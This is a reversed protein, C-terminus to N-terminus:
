DVQPKVIELVKAEWPQLGLDNTTQAYNSQLLIMQRDTQYEFTQPEDSFNLLVLIESKEDWRRYAYVQEHENQVSEYDGYVFMPNQKRWMIMHRYYNLVSTPDEEQDKANIEVFNPNPKIWPEAESFGGNTESSWQMPTRANDRGMKHVNHIHEKWDKGEAELTKFYNLTEVDRYDEPTEFAVNTMGLEDGQYVYPTGRMTMTMTVLLKAAEIRYKGDNAFRSVQRPFDHNDLFISGWGQNRLKEDWRNFINKFEVLSYPIPDFKGGEGMDLFMHDFHFVMNLENRDEGVYDLGHELTIGPGEGVTMIDYKSLVEKNLEQLFEHIRPGNAYVNEIVHEINDTDVDAFESRKSILSIVDMRFGDIGMNFWYRVIDQVEKRVKPNEWNLDAQKKTFLHLYYEDTTEDYEWTSGGFFGQWNTPPGGNKGPKWIYYDRYPNDKSKRSEEFWYHEDSSHNVVLDMVLKMGRAHIGALMEQFDDMTGFEEMINRYDSIDYGNDDNPSKYVPSLWIVEIGLSQVYDLKEIIGRIDGIGDNNSDNFSRPYIQYVVSEKWWTKNM